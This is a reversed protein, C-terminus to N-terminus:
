DNCICCCVSSSLNEWSLESSQHNKILFIVSAM